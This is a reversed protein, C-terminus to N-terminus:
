RVPRVRRSGPSGAADGWRRWEGTSLSRLAREREQPSGAAAEALRRLGAAVEAQGRDGRTVSLYLHAIEPHQARLEREIRATLQEVDGAALSDRVDLKAAVLAQAPGLLMTLMELVGDVGDYRHLAGLVALRLEPDVAEGILLEKTDRGLAYAVWALVLGIAISAIADPVASGTAQHLGIGVLALLLGTVAASDESAVTKVTPDTSLKVHEILSRRRSRAEGSLQRLAKALSAGELVLAVVLVAYSLLFENRTPEHEDGLLTTVGQYISFLAGTVFIGVAALLSWFFREKGYGFPHTPDASRVARKLAFLLFVQNTTDAWSHAAESLMASSLTILGAITKTIAIALNAGLALLVTGKSEDGAEEAM